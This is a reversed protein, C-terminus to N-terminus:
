PDSCASLMCDIDVFVKLVYRNNERLSATFAIILM